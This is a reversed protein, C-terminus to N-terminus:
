CLNVLSRRAQRRQERKFLTQFLNINSEQSILFNSSGPPRLTPRINAVKWDCAMNCTALNERSSSENKFKHGRTDPTTFYVDIDGPIDNGSVSSFTFIQSWNRCGYDMQRANIAPKKPVGFSFSISSIV